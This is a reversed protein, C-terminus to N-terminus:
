LFSFIRSSFSRGVGFSKQNMDDLFANNVAFMEKNTEYVHTPDVM